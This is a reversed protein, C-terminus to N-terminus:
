IPVDVSKIADEISHWSRSELLRKARPLTEPDACTDVHTLMNERTAPENCRICERAAYWWVKAIIPPINAM